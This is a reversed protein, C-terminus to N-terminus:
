STKIAQHLRQHHKSCLWMVELPKSYDPHHGEVKLSGCATCPEIKIFGSKVAKRAAIRAEVKEPYSETYKKQYGMFYGRRKNYRERNRAREGDCNKCRTTIGRKSHKDKYFSAYPKIIKCLYCRYMGEVYKM